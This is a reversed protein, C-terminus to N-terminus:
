EAGEGSRVYIQAVDDSYSQQWGTDAELLVALNSDPVTLVYQVDFDDLPERWTDSLQSTQVYYDLFEDGYVDARGDVFVPIGHWILYGGWVYQNYGRQEALGSEQLYAVAASPYQEVIATENEAIRRDIWIFSTLVATLLLGWNLIRMLRTSTQETATGSLLPYVATGGLSNLLYRATIPAAVIAFLPINRASMLGAAATGGFMLLDSWSPRKKSFIMGMGGLAALIVFPWFIKNHFNPSQWEIIYAQMSSSGLTQFPYLWLKIGNPNLAAALFSLVIMMGLFRLAPSPLAREDGDRWRELADGILYVLLVVIGLFYGSHFNAWLITLPPLAWLARRSWRGNKVQELLLLFVATFLLNFIQPRVGWVISSTFASLLLIFAALFPRGPMITYLLGFIATILTAFLILLGAWGSTAYVSWMVVQSLWEHTIWEHHPVTFSFIDHHPIGNQLIYEGTRLHWWMDPDLTDKVAITFLAVFFIATFLRRTTM